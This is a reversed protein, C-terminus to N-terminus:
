SELTPANQKRAELASMFLAALVGLVLGIFTGILVILARKPKSRQLPLSPASQYSFAEFKTEGKEQLLAKLLKAQLQVQYYREPYITESNKLTDIQAQLYDTGLMFLFNDEALRDDTLKVGAEGSVGGPLLFRGNGTSSYRKIGANSAIQLAKNLNKLRVSLSTDAFVKISEEEISLARIKAQIEANLSSLARNYVEHNIYSILGQLRKQATKADKDYVSITLHKINKKENPKKIAVSKILTLLNDGQADPMATKFYNLHNDYSGSASLFRDFTSELIKELAEQNKQNLDQNPDQNGRQSQNPAIISLYQEYRDLYFGMDAADPQVIEAQSTWEEPALLAYGISVVAFIASFVVVWWRKKWVSLMLEILDIEDGQISQTNKEIM